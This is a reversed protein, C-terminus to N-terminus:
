KKAFVRALRGQTEEPHRALVAAALRSLAEYAERYEAPFRELAAAHAAITAYDGRALPGTWAPGPGLREFNDLMQRLLPLLALSAQRHTFGASMLIQAAAEVLALAHGAVMAGAAHYAPKDAGAVHVAVGGLGRVIRRATRLATRSGEIAFVTGDLCPLRKGTFTQLPHLSGTAAGLKALPELATSDLAGSTHLVIEGKLEEGGIRALEAATQGIADDPTCILILKAAVAQRTLGACPRGGGIASVAARATAVSRTVIPGVRWGLSRLRQGLARGVRGAGIIALTEAM